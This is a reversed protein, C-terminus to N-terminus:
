ETTYTTTQAEKVVRVPIVISGGTENGFITLTTSYSNLSPPLAKATIVFSKAVVTMSSSNGTSSPRSTIFETNQVNVVGGVTRPIPEKIALNVYNSDDLIATYGATSNLGNITSPSIVISQGPRGNVSSFLIINSIGVSIVPIQTTGKPLTILKYKMTKTEDAIAELLPLNEIAISYYDSGSPHSVNYLSYDIEDDALAFKTIKFNGQSFKERGKKTLIADVTITTNDLYSM